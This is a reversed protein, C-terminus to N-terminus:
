ITMGGEEEEIGMNGGYEGVEEWAEEEKKKKKTEIDKM